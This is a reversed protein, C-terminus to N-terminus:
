EHYIKALNYQASANDQKAAKEYWKKAQSLDKRAGKGWAYILGTNYQAKVNGEKALLHSLMLHKRM